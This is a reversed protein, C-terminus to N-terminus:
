VAKNILSSNNNSSFPPMRLFLPIGFNEEFLSVNNDCFILSLIRKRRCRPHTQIIKPFGSKMGNKWRVTLLKSHFIGMTKSYSEAELLTYLHTALAHYTTPSEM